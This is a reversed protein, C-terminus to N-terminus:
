GRLEPDKKQNEVMILLRQIESCLLQFSATKRMYHDAGLLLAVKEEERDGSSAYMVVPISRTKTNAKLARLCQVGSKRPMNHDLFIVDPNVPMSVLSEFAKDGDEAFIVNMSPNVTRIAEHFVDRDDQDDDVMFVVKLM